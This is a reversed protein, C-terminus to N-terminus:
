KRCSFNYLNQRGKSPNESIGKIVKVKKERAERVEARLKMITPKVNALMNDLKDQNREIAADCVQEVTRVGGYELGQGMNDICKDVQQVFSEFKANHFWNEPQNDDAALTLEMFGGDATRGLDVHTSFKDVGIGSVSVDPQSAFIKDIPTAKLIYDVQGYNGKDPYFFVNDGNPIKLIVKESKLIEEKVASDKCAEEIAGMALEWMQGSKGRIIAMQKKSFNGM